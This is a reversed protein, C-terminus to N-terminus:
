VLRALKVEWTKDGAEIHTMGGTKERASEIALTESCVLAQFDDGAAKLPDNGWVTLSDENLVRLRAKEIRRIDLKDKTLEIQKGATAIEIVVSRNDLIKQIRRRSAHGQGTWPCVGRPIKPQLRVSRRSNQGSFRRYICERCFIKPISGPYVASDM